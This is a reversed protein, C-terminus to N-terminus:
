KSQWIVSSGRDESDGGKEVLWGGDWAVGGGEGGWCGGENNCEDRALQVLLLQLLFAPLQLLLRVILRSTGLEGNGAGVNVGKGFTKGRNEM